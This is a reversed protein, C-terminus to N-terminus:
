EWSTLTTHPPEGWVRGEDGGPSRQGRAEKEGRHWVRAASLRPSRAWALAADLFACDSTSKLRSKPRKAEKLQTM